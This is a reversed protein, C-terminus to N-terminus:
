QVIHEIFIAGLIIMSIGGIRTFIMEKDTPKPDRYRMGTRFQFFKPFVAMSIGAIIVIAGMIIKDISM